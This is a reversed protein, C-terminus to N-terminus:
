FVGMRLLLARAAAGVQGQSRAAVKLHDIAEERRGDQLALRGLLYHAEPTPLINLSDQLFHQATAPKRAKLAALGASFPPLFYRSNLAAAKEYWTLAAGYDERAMAIDGLTLPFLAEGPLAAAAQAELREAQDYEKRSLSQLARAHLEYAPKARFLAALREHYREKERRGGAGLKELLARNARVRAESPPHSQFLADLVGPEHGRSLRVFTEQLDVAAAPDYGARQMYIMGYHDAESEQARSYSQMVLQSGLNTGMNYLTSYPSSQTFASLLGLGLQLITGRQMAQASHGAAAHVIEHGLVAALEAEDDLETLLARHVAIKGGPLAWANAEDSDVVVFEYPLDPRDSVAALKRGVEAVYRNVEPFLVMPGGQLQQTPAFDEQGLAIEEQPTVFRLERRGTVPNTVCGSCALALLIAWAQWL